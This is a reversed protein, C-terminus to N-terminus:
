QRAWPPMVEPSRFPRPFNFMGLPKCNLGLMELHRKTLVVGGWTSTMAAYDTWTASDTQHATTSSAQKMGRSVGMFVPALVMDTVVLAYIRERHEGADLWDDLCKNCQSFADLILAEADKIYTEVVRQEEPVLPRPLRNTIDDVTVHSEM